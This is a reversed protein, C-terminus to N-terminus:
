ISEISRIYQFVAELRELVSGRITLINKSSVKGISENLLRSLIKDELNRHEGISRHGDDKGDFEIPLYLLLDYPNNTLHSKIMGSYNENLQPYYKKTDLEWFTLMDLVSRDAIFGDKCDLEGSIRENLTAYHCLVHKTPEIPENFNSIGILKAIDRGKNTLVPMNLKEALVNSLTTKGTGCAGCIAIKFGKKM